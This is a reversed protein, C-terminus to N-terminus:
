GVTKNDSYVDFILHNTNTLNFHYINHMIISKFSKDNM